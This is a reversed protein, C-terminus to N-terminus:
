QRQIGSVSFFDYESASLLFLREERPVRSAHRIVGRTAIERIYGSEFRSDGCEAEESTRKKEKKREQIEERHSGIKKSDRAGFKEEEIKRKCVLRSDKCSELIFIRSYFKRPLLKQNFRPFHIKRHQTQYSLSRNQANIYKLAFSLFTQIRNYFLERSLLKKLRKLSELNSLITFFLQSNM